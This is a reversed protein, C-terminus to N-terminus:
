RSSARECRVRRKRGPQDVERYGADGPGPQDGPRDVEEDAVGQMVVHLGPHESPDLLASLALQLM